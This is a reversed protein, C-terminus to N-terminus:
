YAASGKSHNVRPVDLLSKAIQSTKAQFKAQKPKPDEFSSRMNADLQALNNHKTSQIPV